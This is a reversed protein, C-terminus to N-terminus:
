RHRPHPPGERKKILQTMSEDFSEYITDPLEVLEMKDASVRVIFPSLPHTYVGGCDVLTIGGLDDVLREGLRINDWEVFPSERTRPRVTLELLESDVIGELEWSEHKSEFRVITRGIEKTLDVTETRELDTVVSEIWRTVAAYDPGIIYARLEETDM